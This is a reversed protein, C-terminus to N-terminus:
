KGTNLMNILLRIAGKNGAPLQRFFALSTYIYHGKGRQTYLTCGDLPKEGADNMRFLPKYKDDWKAPFYLGREQVWGEFDDNTIKNPTNLIKHKPDLLAISADEETVRQSSLTIPYPGINTTAMDQLTNYQMVLTGGNNVYQNLVHMWYNMRKETNIVRVGTLVADYKKLKEVTIDQESLIDVQLGTLRLVEAVNDGAGNIYAIRKVTSKWNSRLVKAYAPTFYQLTPLHEYKIINQKRDCLGNSTQLNALLYFDDKTYAAVQKSSFTAHITTDIGKRLNLGKAEYVMDKSYVVLSANAIDKNPHIRVAANVSGDNNAVILGATFDVSADPVIRLQEIVDGHTPDLKKFSLPAQMTFDKGDINISLTAYLGNPTTPYGILTDNPVKFHGNDNKGDILWYPEAYAADEPIRIKREFSYLSDKGLRMNASSDTQLWKINNLKVPVDTRAIIRLTFALVEGRTAEAQKTYVEAMLGSCHLILADLEKLKQTRWYNNKVTEIEERVALLKRLSKEPHNFDFGKLIADIHEGIEPRNVRGWTIDIGDFLSASLSDGAVLKFYETQVGPTSPTGAGQSRHISRSIGALEGYGMGIAPSYQGVPLKFQDESTTNRDGFRFSNFLVRKPKWVKYYKLQEPYMRKDGSVKYAEEALIASAAHQGHGANANPPFRCIVVDPRFKRYIWVVDKTLLGKDWHKFTEDYNKSFGFDIARTFYQGAGDMKRAELLEHTRILGLAAGQENGLINQGGDGRTLSLYATNLHQDNVLWALLRTNEDDPHAALYLVNALNKLQAIEHYIQASSAPRVQQAQSYLTTAALTTLAILKKM